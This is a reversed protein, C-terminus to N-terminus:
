AKRCAAVRSIWWRGSAGTRAVNDRGFFEQQFTLRHPFNPSWAPDKEEALLRWETATPLKNWIRVSQRPIWEVAVDQWQSWDIGYSTKAGTASRPYYHPHSKGDSGLYLHINTEGGASKNSGPYLEIVDIEGDWPWGVREGKYAPKREPIPWTLAVAGYGAVNQVKSRYEWRIPTAVQPNSASANVASRNKGYWALAGGEPNGPTGLHGVLTLVRGYTPDAEIRVNRQMWSPGYGDKQRRYTSYGWDYPGWEGNAKLAGGESGIPYEQMTNEAALTWGPVQCAGAATAAPAIDVYAIKTNTGGAQDLVLSGNTVAVTATATAHRDDPRPQFRLITSGNARIVHTSDVYGADGVAVTIRYSGNALLAKWRGETHVGLSGPPLAMHIFSDLRADNVLNRTRANAALSLPNGNPDIWGYGRAADFPSGTDAAYSAPLNGAAPKFDVRLATRAGTAAALTALSRALAPVAATSFRAVIGAALTQGTESRVGGANNRLRVVYSTASQLPALPTLEVVRGSADLVIASEVRTGAESALEITDGHVSARDLVTDAVLRISATTSFGHTGSTPSSATLSAAYGDYAIALAALGLALAAVTRQPSRM